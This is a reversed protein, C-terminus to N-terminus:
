IGTSGFGCTGRETPKLEDVIEIEPTKIQELILQAIRDGRKIPFEVKSPNQLMVYIRGLYDEDIVGANVIIQKKSVGSRPAVRGYTGSPVTICIGTDILKSEGPLIIEDVYSYLDYGAAYKSGRTPPQADPYFLKVRLSDQNTM